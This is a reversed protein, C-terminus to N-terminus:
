RNKIRNVRMMNLRRNRKATPNPAPGRRVVQPAPVALTTAREPKRFYSLAPSSDLTQTFSGKAYRRPM